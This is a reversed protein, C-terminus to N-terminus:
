PPSYRSQLELIGAPTRGYVRLGVSRGAPVNVVGQFPGTFLFALNLGMKLSALNVGTLWVWGSNDIIKETQKETRTSKGKNNHCCGTRLFYSLLFSLPSLSAFLSRPFFSRSLSFLSFSAPPSSLCFLSSLFPPLCRLALLSFVLLSLLFLLCAFLSALCSLSLSLRFCSFSVGVQVMTFQWTVQRSDAPSWFCGFHGHQSQNVVALNM